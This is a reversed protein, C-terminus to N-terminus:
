PARLTHNPPLPDAGLMIAPLTLHHLTFTRSPTLTCFQAFTCLLALHFLLASYVLDSNQPFFKRRKPNSVITKFVFSLYFHACPKHTTFCITLDQSCPMIAQSWNAQSLTCRTVSFSSFIPFLVTHDTSWIGCRCHPALSITHHTYPITLPPWTSSWMLTTCPPPDATSPLIISLCFYSAMPSYRILLSMLM